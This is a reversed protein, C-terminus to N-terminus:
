RVLTFDNSSEPSSKSLLDELILIDKMEDQTFIIDVVYDLFLDHYMIVQLKHKVIKNFFKNCNKLDRFTFRRIKGRINKTEMKVRELEDEIEDDPSYIKYTIFSGLVDIERKLSFILEMMYFRVIPNGPLYLKRIAYDEELTPPNQFINVNGNRNTYKKVNWKQPYDYMNSFKLGNKWVDRFYKRIYDKYNSLVKDYLMDNIKLLIVFDRRIIDLSNIFEIEQLFRYLWDPSFTPFYYISFLLCYDPHDGLIRKIEKEVGETEFKKGKSIRMGYQVDMEEDDRSMTKITYEPGFSENVFPRLRTELCLVKYGNYTPLDEYNNTRTFGPIPIWSSM